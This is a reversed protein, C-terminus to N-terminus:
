AIEEPKASKLYEKLRESPKREDESHLEKIFDGVQNLWKFFQFLLYLNQEFESIRPLIRVKVYQLIRPNDLLRTLDKKEETIEAKMVDPPIQGLAPLIWMAFKGEEIEELNPIAKLFAELVIEAIREVEGPNLIEKLVLLVFEKEPIALLLNREVVQLADRRVKRSVLSAVFGKWTLGYMSEAKRKGRATIRKAAEDLYGREKLSDIRRTVTSYEQIGRKKLRKHVDYKLLPGETAITELILLNNRRGIGKLAPIKLQALENLNTHPSTNQKLL